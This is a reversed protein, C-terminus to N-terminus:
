TTARFVPFPAGQREVWAVEVRLGICLQEPTCDLITSTYRLGRQEDLEVSVVPHPEAYDVGTTPPGQHMWTLLAVTGRGSVEDAGIDASCCAPCLPLPPHHWHGCARCHSLALRRELIARYHAKTDHDIQGSFHEFLPSDPHPTKEETSV